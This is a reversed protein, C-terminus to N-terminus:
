SGFTKTIAVSVSKVKSIAKVTVENVTLTIFFNQLRKSINPV